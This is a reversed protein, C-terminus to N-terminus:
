GVPVDENKSQKVRPHYLIAEEESKFIPCVIYFRLFEAKKVQFTDRIKQGVDQRTGHFCHCVQLKPRM